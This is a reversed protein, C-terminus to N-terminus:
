RDHELRRGDILRPARRAVTLRRRRASDSAEDAITRHSRSSHQPDNASPCHSRMVNCQVVETHVGKHTQTPKPPNAIHHPIHGTQTLSMVHNVNPTATAQVPWVICRCVPWPTSSLTACPSLRCASHASFAGDRASDVSLACITLQDRRPDTSIACQLTYPARTSYLQPRGLDLVYM